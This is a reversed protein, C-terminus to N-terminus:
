ADCTFTYRPITPKQNYIGRMFQKALPHDGFKANNTLIIISSLASRATNIASYRRSVNPEEFLSQLFNLAEPVSAYIPDLAREICYKQWKDIYTKYLKNSSKRRSNLLTGIVAPSCGQRALTEWQLPGGHADTEGGHPAETATRTQQFSPVAWWYDSWDHNTTTSNTQEVFYVLTTLAM